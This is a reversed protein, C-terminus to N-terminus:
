FKAEREVATFARDKFYSYIVFGDRKRRKRETMFHIQLCKKVKKCLYLLNGSGKM